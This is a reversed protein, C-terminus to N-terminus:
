DLRKYLMYDMSGESGAFIPRKIRKLEVVSNHEGTPERVGVGPPNRSPKRDDYRCRKDSTCNRRGQCTLTVKVGWIDPKLAILIGIFFWMVISISFGEEDTKFIGGITFLKM